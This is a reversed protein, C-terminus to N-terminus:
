DHTVMEFRPLKETPLGQPYPTNPDFEPIQEPIELTGPWRQKLATIVMAARVQWTGQRSARWRAEEWGDSFSHHALDDLEAVLQEPTDILRLLPEKHLLEEFGRTAIMPRCAALHEYFRTSSGSFTPEKRRYPLVAVDLARAYEQLLGYAKGGTFRVRGGIKMLKERAERQEAEPVDMHTPGIFAWSYQSTQEVASLLLRWNLNAALNGIIGVIPRPLDKLDDPVEAPCTPPSPYLNSERTANPVIDIKAPECQAESVMYEAVRRSNPCVAAAARCLRRDLARVQGPSVGAYGFTLDTQYYVVPGPWKEAVPAYFPTTCILPSNEADPSYLHMRRAQAASWNSLLSIPFRHYGRQLSFTRYTLPPDALHKESEGSRAFAIRSMTPLWGLVPVFEGLASAFEKIWVSGIDLVHWNMNSLLTNTIRNLFLISLL